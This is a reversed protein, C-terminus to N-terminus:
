NWPVLCNMDQMSLGQPRRRAQGSQAQGDRRGPRILLSLTLVPRTGCGENLLHKRKAGCCSLLPPTIMNQTSLALAPALTGVSRPPPRRVRQLLRCAKVDAWVHFVPIDWSQPNVLHKVIIGKTEWSHFPTSVGVPRQRSNRRAEESGDEYGDKCGDMCGRIWSDM